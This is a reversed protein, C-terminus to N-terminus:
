KLRNNQLCYAKDGHPNMTNEWFKVWSYIKDLEQDSCNKMARGYITKSISAQPLKGGGWLHLGRPSIRSADVM